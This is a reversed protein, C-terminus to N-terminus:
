CFAATIALIFKAILYTKIFGLNLLHMYLLLIDTLLFMMYANESM